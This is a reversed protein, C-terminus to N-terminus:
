SLALRSPTTGFRQGFRATLHSHSSFGLDAAIRSLSRPSALGADVAARLREGERYAHLTTGTQARFVRALHFSSVHLRAGIEVLSLRAGLDGSLVTAAAEALETHASETAMRRGPGCRAVVLDVLRLLREEALLPALDGRALARFLLRQQLFTADDIRVMPVGFSGVSSTPVAHTELAEQIVDPAVALFDARDGDPHV